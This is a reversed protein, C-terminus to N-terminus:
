LIMLLNLNLKVPMSGDNVACLERSQYYYVGSRQILVSVHNSRGSYGDFKTGLSPITFCHLVGKTTIALRVPRKM